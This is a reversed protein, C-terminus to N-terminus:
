IDEGEYFQDVWYYTYVMGIYPLFHYYIAYYAWKFLRYFQFSVKEFITTLREPEVKKTELPLQNGVQDIRQKLQDKILFCYYVDIYNIVMLASFDMITFVNYNENGTVIIMTLELSAEIIFKLWCIILPVAIQEFKDQHTLVYKIRKISALLVPQQILHIAIICCYKLAICPYDVHRDVGWKNYYQCSGYIM